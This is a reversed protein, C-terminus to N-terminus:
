RHSALLEKPASGKPQDGRAALERYQRAKAVDREVGYGGEYCLALDLAARASGEEVARLWWHVASKENRPMGLGYFSYRGLEVMAPAHCNNAAEQLLAIPVVGDGTEYARALACLAAPAGIDAGARLVRMCEEVDRAAGYHETLLQVLRAHLDVKSESPVVVTDFQKLAQRLYEIAKLPDRAMGIGGWACRSLHQLSPLSLLPREAYKGYWKLAEAEDRAVGLGLEYARGIHVAYKPAGRAEALRYWRLAEQHNVPVGLGYHHMRGIKGACLAAEEKYPLEFARLFHHMARGYDRKTGIGRLYCRGVHNDATSPAECLARTYWAFAATPDFPLPDGNEYAEGVILMAEESGLEACKIALKIPADPAHGSSWCLMYLPSLRKYGPVTLAREYWSRAASLEGKQECLDGIADCAYPHKRQYALQFLSIARPLDHKERAIVGLEFAADANGVQDSCCLPPPTSPTPRSRCGSSRRRTTM